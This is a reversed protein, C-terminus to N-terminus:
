HMENDSEIIEAAELHYFLDIYYQTVYTKVDVWLREIRQNHVSLGTLVPRKEVGHYDLMWRAMQINETGYDTRIKEPCRFRNVAELFHGLVTDARNNTVCKLFVIMRSYGDIAGHIVFRWRILKHNGDAHRFSAYVFTISLLKFLILLVTIFSHFM